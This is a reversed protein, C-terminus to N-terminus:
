YRMKAAEAMEAVLREAFYPGYGLILLTALGLLVLAGILQYRPRRFDEGQTWAFWLPGVLPLVIVPLASRWGFNLAAPLTNIYGVLLLAAGCALLLSSVIAFTTFWIDM